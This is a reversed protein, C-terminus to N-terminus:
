PPSDNLGLDKPICRIRPRMMEGASCLATGVLTLARYSVEERAPSSSIREQTMCRGPQQASSEPPASLGQPCWHQLLRALCSAGGLTVAARQPNQFQLLVSAFSSASAALRTQM